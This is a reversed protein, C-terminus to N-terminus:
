SARYAKPTIGTLQRFKRGFHSHSNFGYELAIEGKAVSSFTCIQQM